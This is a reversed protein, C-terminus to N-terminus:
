DKELAEQAAVVSRVSYAIYEGDTAYYLTVQQSFYCYEFYFLLSGSKEEGANFQLYVTTFDYTKQEFYESLTITYEDNLDIDGYYSVLSKPHLKIEFGALESTYANFSESIEGSFDRIGLRANNADDFYPQDQRVGNLGLRFIVPFLTDARLKEATLVRMNLIIQDRTFDVSDHEAEYTERSMVKTMVSLPASKEPVPTEPNEGCSSLGVCLMVAALLLSILRKM